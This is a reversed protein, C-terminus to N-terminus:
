IEPAGELRRVPAPELSRVVRQALNGAMDDAQHVPRRAEFRSHLRMEAMAESSLRATIQPYQTFSGM